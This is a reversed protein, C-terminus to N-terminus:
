GEGLMRLTTRKLTSLLAELHGLDRATYKFSTSSQYFFEALDQPTAGHDALKDARASFLGALLGIKGEEAAQRAAPGGEGQGTMLDSSDPMQKTQEFYRVIALDLFIDLKDGITDVSAWAERVDRVVRDTILQMAGRVIEGKNAYRAYLTQRSIGAEAAIDGMTAKRVGYRSFVGIAADLIQHDRESM